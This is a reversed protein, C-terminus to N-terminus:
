VVTHVKMTYSEIRLPLRLFTAQAPLENQLPVEGVLIRTMISLM